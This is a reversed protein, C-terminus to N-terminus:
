MGFREYDFINIIRDETCLKQERIQELVEKTYITAIVLIAGKEERISAPAKIQKGMFRKGQKSTDNDVFFTDEHIPINYKEIVKPAYRGTGWIITKKQTMKGFLQLSFFTYKECEGAEYMQLWEMVTSFYTRYQESVKWFGMHILRKYYEKVANIYLDRILREYEKAREKGFFEFFGVLAFARIIYNEYELLSSSLGKGHYRHYGNYENVFYAKGRKLHILNRASDARFTEEFQSGALDMFETPIGESFYVNRYVCAMTNSLMANGKLFDDFTSSYTDIHQCDFYPEISGDNYLKYVNTEYITYEPNVDLFDVAKQLWRDDSWYDDPDLVCFYESNMRKLAKLMNQFLRQNRDSYLALIKNPYKIEYEKIISPSADQSADDTIIIQYDFEVKQMIISDLAQRIYQGNNYSPMIVTLKYQDM